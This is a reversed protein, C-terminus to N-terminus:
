SSGSTLYYGKQSFLLAPQLSIHGFDLSGVVGAEFGTRSKIHYSESFYSASSSNLDVQPGLQLTTQAQVASTLLLLSKTLLWITSTKTM